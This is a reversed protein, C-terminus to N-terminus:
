VEEPPLEFNVLDARFGRTRIAGYVIGATMWIAGLVMAARSLHMWIFGCIAFGLVPVLLHSWTRSKGRWWYHTFSAANVGMFAIFAGFNLAQAGVAYASGGLRDSFFEMTAAGVLAFAGVLVIGNRPVRHRPEIVGFFSKPIANGQGMGYLLRGAALQSAIATGMNAILLTFNMVQFLLFGGVQRSVMAFASEV